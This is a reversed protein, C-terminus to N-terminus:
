FGVNLGLFIMSSKVRFRDNESPVKQIKTATTLENFLFQYALKVGIKKSIEYKAYFHSNLSGKDNDGVLLINVATPKATTAASKGNSIYKPSGNAGFSIGAADINFGLEVKNNLRYGLNIIANLSSLAPKPALLSDINKPDATLSAPATIFTINNGFFSTFRVGTGILFKDKKGLSWNKHLALGLTGSAGRIGGGIEAYTNKQQAQTAFAAIITFFIIALKKM